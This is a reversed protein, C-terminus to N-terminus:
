LNFSAKILSIGKEMAEAAKTPDVGGGRAMDSRGGGGGGVIRSMERVVKGADAGKAVAKKGAAAVIKVGEFDSILLAMVDDDQTLEGAIKVLEEIDAHDVNQAV